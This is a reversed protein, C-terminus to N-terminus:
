RRFSTHWRCRGRARRRRTPAHVVDSVGGQTILPKVISPIFHNYVGAGLFSAYGGANRNTGALTELEARLELESTPPPINLSPSRHESPIDEFLGDISDLGLAELM